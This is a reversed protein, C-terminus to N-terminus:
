VEIIVPTALGEGLGGSLHLSLLYTRAMSVGPGAAHYLMWGELRVAVSWQNRKLITSASGQLAM